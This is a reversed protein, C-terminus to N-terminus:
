IGRNDSKDPREIISVPIRSENYGLDSHVDVASFPQPLGTPKGNRVAM